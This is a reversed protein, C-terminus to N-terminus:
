VRHYRADFFCFVGFCAFGAAIAYLAAPGFPQAALTKVAADLGQAQEPRSTLGAVVILAGIIVFSVSKALAGVQGARCAITRAVRGAEDLAMDETFALRWGRFGMVAGTVLVVAGVVVV